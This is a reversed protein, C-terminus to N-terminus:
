TPTQTIISLKDYNENETTFTVNETALTECNSKKVEQNYISTSTESRPWTPNLARKGKVFLYVCPSTVM